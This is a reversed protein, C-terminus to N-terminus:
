PKVGTTELRAMTSTKYMDRVRKIWGLTIFQSGRGESTFLSIHARSLCFASNEWAPWHYNWIHKIRQIGAIGWVSRSLAALITQSGASHYAGPSLLLSWTKM